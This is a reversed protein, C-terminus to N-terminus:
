LLPSHARNADSSEYCNIPFRNTIDGVARAEHSLASDKQRWL